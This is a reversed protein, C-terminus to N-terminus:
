TALIVLVLFLALLGLLLLMGSLEPDRVPEDLDTGLHTQHTTM